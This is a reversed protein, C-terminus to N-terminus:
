NNTLISDVTSVYLSSIKEHAFVELYQERNISSIREAMRSSLKKVIKFERKFTDKEESEFWFDNETDRLREPMAGVRSSLIIRAAAMAEVGVLPGAEHRSPIILCDILSFFDAVEQSKLQGMFIINECGGKEEILARRLEGDGILYLKDFKGRCKKFNSILFQFNKESSFRGIAAFVTPQRNLPPIQLLLEENPAAQDIIAYNQNKIWKHLKDANEGSHHLYYTVKELYAPFNKKEQILGTTRFIIKKNAEAAIEIVEKTRLSFLHAIIFILDVEKIIKLLQEEEKLRFGNITNFKNNVYYHVPFKRGNKLYSLFAAPRVSFHNKYIKEKLSTVDGKFAYHYLQSAATINATSFVSVEFHRSLASAIFGAEIERGGEDGIPGIILIKKM